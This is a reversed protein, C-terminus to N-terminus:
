CPNPETLLTDIPQRLQAEPVPGIIVRRVRGCKDILFKEPVGRIRYAQSIRTGLDPGNPYTIGFEQLFARSEKDTDAYAVGVFLVAQDRYGRWLAELLPAEQRCPICWSAWFDLMVVKGRMESLHFTGGDYLNLTFDPAPGNSVQGAQARYIRFGVLILLGLVLASTLWFGWQTRRPIAPSSAAAPEEAM